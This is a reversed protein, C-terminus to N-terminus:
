GSVTTWCHVFLSCLVSTMGGAVEEMQETSLARLTERNLSLKRKKLNSKENNMKSM